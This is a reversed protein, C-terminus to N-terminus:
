NWPEVVWCVWKNTHAIPILCWPHQNSTCKDERRKKKRPIAKSRCCRPLLPNSVMIREENSSFSCSARTQLATLDCRPSEGTKAFASSEGGTSCGESKSGLSIEAPRRENPPILLGIRSSAALAFALIFFFALVAFFFLHDHFIGWNWETTFLTSVRNCWATGNM